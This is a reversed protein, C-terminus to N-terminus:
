TSISHTFLVSSDLHAEALEVLRRHHTFFIVQTRESLQTLVQLAATAWDEFPILITTWSLGHAGEALDAAHARGDM